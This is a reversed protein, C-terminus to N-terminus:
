SFTAFAATGDGDHTAPAPERRAETGFRAAFISVSSPEPKLTTHEPTPFRTM